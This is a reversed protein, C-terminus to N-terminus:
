PPEPFTPGRGSRLGRGGLRERKRKRFDIVFDEGLDGIEQYFGLFGRGIFADRVRGYEEASVRRNVAPVSVAKFIPRYQAMVSVWIDEPDYASALHELINQSGAMGEPLVLHRICLGSEAVGEHDMSLPGVQRFMERVAARNADVYDPAGSLLAADAGRGYKMDPLFIDVIGSLLSMVGAVEYGGCNYVLPIALGKAAAERVARVIWPLFHTPTVLNINHCGQEQLGLMVAALESVEYPRGEFLHSIQFNQCFVCRLTCHSFFVTGSGGSGSIPPEEGHHPFISSIVLGGPAGCFGRGGSFRDVGCRRPCLACASAISDLASIASDWEPLSLYTYSAPRGM